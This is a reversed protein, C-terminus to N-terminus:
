VVVVKRFTPLEKCIEDTEQIENELEEFTGRLEEDEEFVTHYSLNRKLEQCKARAKELDPFVRYLEVELEALANIADFDWLYKRFQVYFDKYCSQLQSAPTLM